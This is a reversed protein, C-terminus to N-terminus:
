DVAQPLNATTPKVTQTAWRSANGVKSRQINEHSDPSRQRGRLRSAARALAVSNTPWVFNSAARASGPDVPEQLGGNPDIAGGELTAVAADGSQDEARTPDDGFRCIAVVENRNQLGTQGHGHGSRGTVNVDRSAVRYYPM